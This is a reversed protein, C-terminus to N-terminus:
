AASSLRRRLHEVLEAAGPVDAATGYVHFDPRQLVWRVDNGRLWTTLEPATEAVDIM